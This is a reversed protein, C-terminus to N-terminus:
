RSKGGPHGFQPHEKTEKGRARIGGTVPFVKRLIRAKKKKIQKSKFGLSEGWGLRKGRRAGRRDSHGTDWEGKKTGSLKELLTTHLIGPVGTKEEGGLFIAKKRKGPREAKGQHKICTNKDRKRRRRQNV